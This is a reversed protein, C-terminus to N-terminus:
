KLWVVLLWSAAGVFSRLLDRGLIDYKGIKGLSPLDPIYSVTIIPVLVLLWWNTHLICIGVLCPISSVLGKLCERKDGLDYGIMNLLQVPSLWLTLQLLWVLLVIVIAQIPPLIWRRIKQTVQGGVMYLVITISAYIISALIAFLITM